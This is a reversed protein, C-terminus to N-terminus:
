EETRPQSLQIVHIICDVTRKPTGNIFLFGSEQRDVINIIYACACATM